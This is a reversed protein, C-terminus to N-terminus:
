SHHHYPVPWSDTLTMSIPDQRALALSRELQTVSNSINDDDLNWAQLPICFM